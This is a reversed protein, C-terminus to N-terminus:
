LLVSDSDPNTQFTLRRRKQWGEFCGLNQLRKFDSGQIAAHSLKVKIFSTWKFTRHLAARETVRWIISRSCVFESNACSKWHKKFDHIKKKVKNSRMLKYQQASICTYGYLSIPNLFSFAHSDNLHILNLNASAVTLRWLGADATMYSIIIM